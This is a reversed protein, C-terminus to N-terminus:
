NRWIINILMEDLNNFSGTGILLIRWFRFETKRNYVGEEAGAAQWANNTNCNESRAETNPSSCWFRTLSVKDENKSWPDGYTNPIFCCFYITSKRNYNESGGDTHPPLVGFFNLSSKEEIKQRLLRNWFSASSKRNCKRVRGPPQTPSLVGFAEKKKLKKVRSHPQTPPISTHRPCTSQGFFHLFFVNFFLHFFVNFFFRRRYPPFPHTGPAPPSDM